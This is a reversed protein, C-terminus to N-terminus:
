PGSLARSLVGRASNPHSTPCSAGAASITLGCLNLAEQPDSTAFDAGILDAADPTNVLIEGGLVIKPVRGLGARIQHTVAVLLDLEEAGTASLAVLDVPHSRVMQGVARADLGLSLRVLAGLRRFQAMAVMAGLTHQAGEPVVFLVEPADFRFNSQQAPELERLWGQLRSAGITVEAFSRASHMWGSGLARAVAPIAHDVILRPEDTDALIASLRETCATRDPSLIAEEIRRSLEGLCPDASTDLRSRPQRFADEGASLEADSTLVSDPLYRGETLM